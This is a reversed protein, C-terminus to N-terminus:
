CRIYRYRYIRVNLNKLILSENSLHLHIEFYLNSIYFYKIEHFFYFDFNITRRDKRKKERYVPNFQVREFHTCIKKKKREREGKKLAFKIACIKAVHKQKKNSSQM